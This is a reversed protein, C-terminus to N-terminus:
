SIEVGNRLIDKIVPDKKHKLDSEVFFHLQIEKKYVESLKYAIVEMKKEIKKINKTKDLFIIALDIDSKDSFILKSYSGFLIIKKFYTLSVIERIFDILIFKIKLPLSLFQGKLESSFNKVFFNDLNLFYLKGNKEILGLNLLKNLSNDLVVNTLLTQDKIEKRLYKSGPSVALFLIIKAAYKDFIDILM